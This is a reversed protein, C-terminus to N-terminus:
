CTTYIASQPPVVAAGAPLDLDPTAPRSRACGRRRCSRTHSARKVLAAHGVVALELQKGPEPEDRHQAARGARLHHDDLGAPPRDDDAAVHRDPEAFEILRVVAPWRTIRPSSGSFTEARACARATAVWCRSLRAAASLDLRAAQVGPVAVVSVGLMLLLAMPYGLRWGLEPM